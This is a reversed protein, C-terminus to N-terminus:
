RSGTPAELFYINSNDLSKFITNSSEIYMDSRLKNIGNLSINGEKYSNILKYLESNEYNNFLSLKKDEIEIKSGSMYEYTAYYDVTTLISFLLKNLIYNSTNDFNDEDTFSKYLKARDNFLNNNNKLYKNSIINSLKSPIETIELKSIFEDLSNINGHHRSIIYAFNYLALTIICDDKSIIPYSCLDIYLKASLLSHNSDKVNDEKVKNNMKLTQFNGNIKGLDHYYIAEKFLTYILDASSDTINPFTSKIINLICKDLNYLKNLKNYYTMCLEMHSLLPEKDLGSKTHAFYNNNKLFEYIQKKM